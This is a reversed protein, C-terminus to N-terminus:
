CVSETEPIEFEKMKRYLTQRSMHLLRSAKAKNWGARNLASLLTQKEGTGSAGGTEGPSQFEAPLHEMQITRGHCLVFAHEMAHELERINGPWPLRMFLQMVPDSVNEVNKRFRKNLLMRFHDLLLPIDERRERLPPFRVEVVNLRFYLDERFEGRKVKEKLNCNTSTLIRVDVKIPRSDGVREIEKEQLVRLLKLQIRPPIDGIEDLLITGGNALEFRGRKDRIAGTFAGKVHGFLESELLGESLACCNVKILPKYARVGGYHIANAALEKGTGSEGTILVTSDTDALNDILKYLDQMTSNRGVIGQYRHREKLENELDTLRTIDRIVMVAGIFAGHEDKLPSISLVVTQDRRKEHECVIRYERVTKRSSITEKLVDRCIRSCGNPGSCAPMGMIDNLALGCITEVSHNAEIVEMATNVTLIGDKVNRFIIELNRRYREKEAILREREDILAKHELALASVRLLADKLVPKSLYDFAGLRVSASATDLNPQGTMVVVPCRLGKEKVKGLLEIGSHKGLLIDVFILDFSNENVAHIASELSEVAQVDHGEASLFEHFVYRINEEDDVVLIRPSM